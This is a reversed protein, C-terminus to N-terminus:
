DLTALMEGLLTLLVSLFQGLMETQTGDALYLTLMKFSGHAM